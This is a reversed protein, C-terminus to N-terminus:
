SLRLQTRLGARAALTVLMDLSFDEVQGKLLRSVRPQTIGLHRAAEAQTWGQEKLRRATLLMVEARLRMVEAEAPDFGLDLFVNGSGQTRSTDEWRADPSPQM